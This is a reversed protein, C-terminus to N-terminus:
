VLVKVLVDPSELSPINLLSPPLSVMHFRILSAVLALPLCVQSLEYRENTPVRHETSVAFKYDFMTAYLPRNLFFLRHQMLGGHVAHDRSRTSVLAGGRAERMKWATCSTTEWSTSLGWCMLCEGMDVMVLSSAEM